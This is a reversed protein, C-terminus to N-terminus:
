SNLITMQIEVQLVPEWSPLFPLVYGNSCVSNQSVLTRRRFQLIKM